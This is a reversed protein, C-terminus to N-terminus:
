MVHACLQDDVPVQDDHRALAALELLDRHFKGCGVVEGFGQTEDTRDSPSGSVGVIWRQTAQRREGM